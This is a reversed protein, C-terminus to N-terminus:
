WAPDSRGASARSIRQAGCFNLPPTAPCCSEASGASASMSPMRRSGSTIWCPVNGDRGQGRVFPVTKTLPRALGGQALSILASEESSVYRNPIALVDVGARTLLELTRSGRKAAVRM